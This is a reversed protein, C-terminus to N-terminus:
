AQKENPFALIKAESTAPGLRAYDEAFAEPALHAYRMTMDISQHGLIRQLRFISGGNMVFHSAFTHRLDHFTIYPKLLGRKREFAFGARKLVRHLVEEFIRASKDLQRGSASPFVFHGPCLLRWERLTTLLADLIPVYRVRNSKCPGDFSRQVTILRREFNVDDWRLGALEGKRLGGYVATSYLAHVHSGELLAARLIRQIEDGTRLYRYATTDIHVRPKHIKPIEVLWGLEVALRLMTGLLTLHNAVTKANLHRRELKYSDIEAARIQRISLKGFQPSLHRKIISQDDRLSRKQSARNELWYRCLEDFLHDKPDADRLGQRIQEAQVEHERLKLLATRYDDLVESKRLGTEDTWRIRWKGYHKVPKAM